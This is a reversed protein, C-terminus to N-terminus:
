ITHCKASIKEVISLLTTEVDTYCWIGFPTPQIKERKAEELAIPTALSTPRLCHLQRRKEQKIVHVINFVISLKAVQLRLPRYPRFLVM